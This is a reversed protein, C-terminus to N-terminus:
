MAGAPPNTTQVIFHNLKVSAGEYEESNHENREIAYYDKLLKYSGHGNEFAIPAEPDLTEFKKGSEKARVMKDKLRDKLEWKNLRQIGSREQAISREASVSAIKREAL